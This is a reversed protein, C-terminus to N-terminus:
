LLKARHRHFWPVAVLNHTRKSSPTSPSISREAHAPRPTKLTQSSGPTNSDTFIMDFRAIQQVSSASSQASATKRFSVSLFGSSIM